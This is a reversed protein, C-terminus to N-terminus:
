GLTNTYQNVETYEETGKNATIKFVYWYELAVQDTPPTLEAIQYSGHYLVVKAESSNLPKNSWSDIYYKYAGSNTAGLNLTLTEPGPGYRDDVDLTVTGDTKKRWWIKLPKPTVVITDLDQATNWTLVARWGTTVESFIVTNSNSTEDSSGEVNIKTGTPVKDTMTGNRLYEGVAPLVVVYTSNEANITAPYQVGSSDTFIISVSGLESSAFLKGTMANKVYGRITYVVKRHFLVSSTKCLFGTLLYSGSANFERAGGAYNYDSYLTVKTDEGLQITRPLKDFSLAGLDPTDDCVEIKTAYDQFLWVCGEAPGRLSCQAQKKKNESFEGNKKIKSYTKTSNAILILITFFILIQFKM